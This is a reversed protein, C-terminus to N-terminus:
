PHRNTEIAAKTIGLKRAADLVAVVSEFNARADGQILVQLDANRSQEARLRPELEEPSVPAKNIYYQGTESVTISVSDKREQPAGTSANPVRVPIGQNKVMSLSIMVFTALLFFIIDILPIIEIRARRVGGHAPIKM